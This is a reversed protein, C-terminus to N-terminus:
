TTPFCSYAGVNAAVESKLAILKANRDFAAQLTVYQDRSHFGAILNERRDENWAVSSKLRRALWVLLVYEPTLSMKQGFGGGVDPAIVRLDSEPMGLLDAIATRTLHPMQTTCTLTVRGTAADYSAHGGRTEMPTANQRRSRVDATVIKHASAWVKDFDATAVVGEVIVNGPAEPHIQPAGPALAARADTAPTSEDIALEVQDAIDEAEAASAGVVAAVLEGTFRVQGDALIPQGVPKYNFKHLMPRIPKVGKLDAATIVLAGDPAAIKEIKGAAVPSRVFRVWHAAPLDHTFRGRGTLLAPDELRRIARGVWSMGSGKTGRESM